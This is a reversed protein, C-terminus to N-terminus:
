RILIYKGGKKAGDYRVLQMLIMKKIDTKASRTSVRWQLVIHNAKVKQEQQLQGLFWIQRQNLKHAIRPPLSLNITCNEASYIDGTEEGSSGPESKSSPQVHPVLYGHGSLELIMKLVAPYHLALVILHECSPPNQGGHWRKITNCGISTKDHIIKICSSNEQHVNHLIEKMQNTIEQEVFSATVAPFKNGTKKYSM